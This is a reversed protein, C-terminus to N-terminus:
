VFLLLSLFHASQFIYKGKFKYIYMYKIAPTLCDEFCQTIVSDNLYSFGVLCLNGLRKWWLVIGFSFFFQRGSCVKWLHPSSEKFEQSSPHASVSRLDGISIGRCWLVGDGVGYYLSLPVLSVLAVEPRVSSSYIHWRTARDGVILLTHM